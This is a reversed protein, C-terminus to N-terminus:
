DESKNFGDYDFGYDIIYQVKDIAKLKDKKLQEIVECADKLDKQLNTIYDYLSKMEEITLEVYEQEKNCVKNWQKLIEEVSKNM